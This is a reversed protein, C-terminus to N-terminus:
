GAAALERCLDLLIPRLLATPIPIPEAAFAPVGKALKAALYKGPLSLRPLRGHEIQDALEIISGILKRQLDIAPALDPRVLLIADWRATALALRTARTSPPLAVYPM